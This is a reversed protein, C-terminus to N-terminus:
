RSIWSSCLPYKCEYSEFRVQCLWRKGSILWDAVCDTPLPDNYWSVAAEDPTGGKLHGNENRRVGCYGRGAFPIQCKNRCLKCQIGDSSSPPLTPLNFQQRSHAHVAELEAISKNDANRICDACFLLVEAIEESFKSCKKCLAM